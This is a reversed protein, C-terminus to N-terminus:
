AAEDKKRTVTLMPYSTAKRISEPQHVMKHRITWAGCIAAPAGALKHVIEAKIADVRAEDAKIRDKLGEREALIEPLRNDGSLDIPPLTDKPKYLRALLAGDEGYDAVPRAGLATNEWFRAVGARIKAEAEANREVHFTVLEASYTDIVLCALIAQDAEALMAGTLAQLQYYIPPEDNWAEFVPRSIVKCEVLSGGQGTMRADPTAGLRIEPDRLYITLREVLSSPYTERLAELVAPELWRGRRLLPSEPKHDAYGTKEAWVQLATKFPSLGFLAAVDSATVDQRRWSLWENRDTIPRTEIV